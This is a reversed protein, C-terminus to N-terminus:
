GTADVLVVAGERTAGVLVPDASASACGCGRGRGIGTVATVNSDVRLEFVGPGTGTVTGSM